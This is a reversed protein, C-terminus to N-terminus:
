AEVFADLDVRYLQELAQRSLTAGQEWFPSLGEVHDSLLRFHPALLNPLYVMPDFAAVVSRIDDAVIAAKGLSGSEILQEFAELKRIFHQLAPSVVLSKADAEYDSARRAFSLARPPPTSELVAPALTAPDTPSSAPEPARSPTGSSVLRLPKPDPTNRSCYAELRTVVAAFEDACIPAAVVAHIAERLEACARRVSAVGGPPLYQVWVSRAAENQREDFDLQAKMMRFGFRLATDITRLDASSPPADPPISLVASIADFLGPVAGPGREAFVGLAYVVFARVDRCGGDILEEARQAAPRYNASQALHMIEDIASDPADQEPRSLARTVLGEDFM